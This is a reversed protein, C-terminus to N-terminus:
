ASEQGGGKRAEELRLLFENEGLLQQISSDGFGIAKLRARLKGIDQPTKFKFQVLTGGAFDVGYRLGGKMFYSTWGIAIMLLSLCLNVWRLRMFGIHTEKFLEM